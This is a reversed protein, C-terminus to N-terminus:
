HASSRQIRTTRRHLIRLLRHPDLAEGEKEEAKEAEEARLAAAARAKERPAVVGVVSVAGLVPLQLPPPDPESIQESKLRRGNKPM